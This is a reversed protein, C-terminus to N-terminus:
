ILARRSWTRAPHHSCPSRRATTHASLAQQLHGLARGCSEPPLHTRVQAANIWLTVYVVLHLSHAHLTCEQWRLVWVGLVPAAALGHQDKLRMADSSSDSDTAAAKAAPVAQPLRVPSLDDSVIDDVESEAAVPIRQGGGGSGGVSNSPQQGTDRLSRAPKTNLAVGARATSGALVGSSGRAAAKAQPRKSRSPGVLLAAQQAGESKSTNFAAAAGAGTSCAAHLQPRTVTVTLPAFAKGAAKTAAPRNRMANIPAGTSRAADHQQQGLLQEERARKM